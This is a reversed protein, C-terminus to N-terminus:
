SKPHIYQISTTASNNRFTKNIADEQSIAEVWVIKSKPKHCGVPRIFRPYENKHADLATHEYINRVDLKDLIPIFVPFMNKSEIKRRYFEHEAFNM